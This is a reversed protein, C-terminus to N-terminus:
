HARYVRFQRRTDAKKIKSKTYVLRKPGLACQYALGVQM